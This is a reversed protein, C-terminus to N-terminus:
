RAAEIRRPDAAFVLGADGAPDAAPETALVDALLDRAADIEAARGAQLDAADAGLDVLTAELRGLPDGEAEHERFDGEYHPRLRVIACELLAPGGGERIGTLLEAAAAAVAEVDGGDVSRSAIGYLSGYSAVDAVPTHEERSSFEVWGNNECVFLVPAGWLAAMNMTEHFGGTQVAGDGFFAAVVGGGPLALAHGVAISLTGGVVGTALVAREDMLHMSGGRGRCLGTERGALEAILARPDSGAALFHGHARHGSYVRDSEALLPITGSTVAEGGISLHLLGPLVGDRYGEAVAEEFGRLRAMRDFHQQLDKRRSM